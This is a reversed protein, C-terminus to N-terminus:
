KITDKLYFSVFGTQYLVNNADKLVYDTTYTLGEGHQSVITIPKPHSNIWDICNKESKDSALDCSTLLIIFLFGLTKM